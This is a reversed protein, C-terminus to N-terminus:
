IWRGLELSENRRRRVQHACKPIHRFICSTDSFMTSLTTNYSGTMIKQNRDNGLVWEVLKQATRSKGFRPPENIVLVKYEDQEIFDQMVRCQKILFDRDPTYFDNAMVHCYYFFDRKALELRAYHRILEKNM